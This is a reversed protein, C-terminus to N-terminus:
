GKKEYIFSVMEDVEKITIVEEMLDLTVESIVKLELPTSTPGEQNSLQEYLIEEIAPNIKNFISSLSLEM